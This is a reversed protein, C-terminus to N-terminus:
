KQLKMEGSEVKREEDATAHIVRFAGHKPDVADNLKRQWESTDGPEPVRILWVNRAIERHALDNREIASQAYEPNSGPVPTYLAKLIVLFIITKM